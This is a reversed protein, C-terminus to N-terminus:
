EADVLMQNIVDDYFDPNDSHTSLYYTYGNHTFVAFGHYKLKHGITIGEAKYDDTSKENYQVSHGNVEMTTDSEWLPLNIGATDGDFSIFCEINDANGDIVNEGYSIQVSLNSWDEKNNFDGNEVIELIYKSHYDGPLGIKDLLLETGGVAEIDSLATTEFHTKAWNPDDAQHETWNEYPLFKVAGVVMLCLCAAMAAWKVWVPRKAKKKYNLAEDVYKTDLESMADSFKKTNM